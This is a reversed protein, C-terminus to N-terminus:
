RKVKYEFEQQSATGVTEHGWSVRFRSMESRIVRIKFATGTKINSPLEFSMAPSLPLTYPDDSERIRPCEPPNDFIITIDSKLEPFLEESDSAAIESGDPPDISIIKANGPRYLKLLPMAVKYYPFQFGIPIRQDKLTKDGWFSSLRHQDVIEGEGVVSVTPIPDVFAYCYSHLEIEQSFARSSKKGKPITAWGALGSEKRRLPECPDASVRLLILLDTKPARNAVLKFTVEKKSEVYGKIIKDGVIEISIVPAKNSVKFAADEDAQCGIFLIVSFFILVRGCLRM